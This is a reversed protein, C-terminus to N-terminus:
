WIDTNNGCHSASLYWYSHTPIGDDPVYIDMRHGAISDGVYDIDKWEKTKTAATATLTILVSLLASIIRTKM